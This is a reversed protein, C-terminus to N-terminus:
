LNKYNMFKGPFKKHSSCHKYANQEVAWIVGATMHYYPHIEIIRLIISESDAYLIESSDAYSKAQLELSTLFVVLGILLFLKM